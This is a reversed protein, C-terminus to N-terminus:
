ANKIYLTPAERGDLRIEDGPRARVLAFPQQNYWVLNLDGNKEVDQSIISNLRVCGFDCSVPLKVNHDEAKITKVLRFNEDVNWYRLKLDNYSKKPPKGTIIERFSRLIEFFSYFIFEIM